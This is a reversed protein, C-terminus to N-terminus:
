LVRWSQYILVRPLCSTAFSVTIAKGKSFSIKESAIVCILAEWQLTGSYIYSHRKRPSSCLLVPQLIGRALYPLAAATFPLFRTFIPSSPGWAIHVDKERLAPNLMGLNNRTASTWSTGSSIHPCSNRPWSRRHVQMRVPVPSKRWYGAQSGHLM